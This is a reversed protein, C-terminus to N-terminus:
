YVEKESNMEIEYKDISEKISRAFGMETIGFLGKDEKGTAKSLEECSGFRVVDIGYTECKQLMKDRTNDGVDDAIILLKLKGSPILKLCTNYGTVLNRSRAAFGLLSIVKKRAKLLKLEKSLEVSIDPTNNLQQRSEGVM